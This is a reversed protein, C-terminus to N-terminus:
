NSLYTSKKPQSVYEWEEMLQSLARVTNPGDTLDLIASLSIGLSLPLSFSTLTHSYLSTLLFFFHSYPFIASLSIGLYYFMRARHAIDKQSVVRYLDEKTVLVCNLFYTGGQHLNKIYKFNQKRKDILHELRKKRKLIELSSVNEDAIRSSKEENSETFQIKEWASLDFDSVRAQNLSM